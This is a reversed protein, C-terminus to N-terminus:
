KLFIRTSSPQRVRRLYTSWLTVGAQCFSETDASSIVEVQADGIFHYAKKKTGNDNTYHQCLLLFCFFHCKLWAFMHIAPHPWRTDRAVRVASRNSAARCKRM